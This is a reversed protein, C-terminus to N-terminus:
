TNTMRKYRTADRSKGKKQRVVVLVEEEKGVGQGYGGNWSLQDVREYVM